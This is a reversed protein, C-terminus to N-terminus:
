NATLTGTVTVQYSGATLVSFDNQMFTLTLGATANGSFTSRAGVTASNDGSQHATTDTSTTLAWNAIADASVFRLVMRCDVKRSPYSAHAFPGCNWTATAGSVATNQLTWSQEAFVQNADTQSHAKTAAGPPTIVQARCLSLGSWGALIGALLLVVWADIPACRWRERNTKHPDM